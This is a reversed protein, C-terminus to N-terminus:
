EQITQNDEAATETETTENVTEDQSGQQGMEPMGFIVTATLNATLQSVDGELTVTVSYTVSARSTSSSTPVIETVTGTFNGYESITVNASEGITIDAVDSQDVSVTVTVTDPNSYALIMSGSQLYNEARAMVMMVTGNNTAKIYGDGILSEFEALNEDAEEKADSLTDLTEELKQIATEYTSKAITGEAVTLQYTAEANMKDEEYSLQAAELELKKSEYDAKAKVYNQPNDNVADEYNELAKLYETENETVEKKLNSLAIVKYKLDDSMGSYNTASLQADTIGWEEMKLKLIAHNENYTNLKDEVEYEVYYYTSDNTAALYENCSEELDALEEELKEIKEDLATLSEEYVIEALQANALTTDYVEKADILGQEYDILGARYDLDALTAEKELQKQGAEVTDESVKLLQTGEEIEDGTSVYIEEIYLEEDLYDIDYSEELVGVVTTGSASIMDAMQMGNAQATDADLTVGDEKDGFFGSYIMVGFIAAVCLLVAAGLLLIRKKANKIKEKM